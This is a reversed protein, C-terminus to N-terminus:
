LGMCTETYSDIENKREYGRIPIGCIDSIVTNLTPNVVGIIYEAVKSNLVSLYFKADDSFFCTPGGNGFLIGQPVYRVSLKYSTIM